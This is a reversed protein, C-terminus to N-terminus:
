IKMVIASAFEEAGDDGTRVQWVCISWVSSGSLDYDAQQWVVFVPQTPFPRQAAKAARHLRVKKAPANGKVRETPAPSKAPLPAVSEPHFVAPIMRPSESERKVGSRLPEHRVVRAENTAAPSAFRVWQPAHAAMGFMAAFMAASLGLMSKRLPKRGSGNAALIETIRLSLQYVRNVLGHVLALATAAQLKETFSILLSAYQNPTGTQAVVMEDCAMERELSLRREIWWVAPHFFFVAKVMKQALNTWDDWRQLHALEHLLIVEMEEASIQSVLSAPFVVAPRFFGIATPVTVEESTCLSVGRVGHNEEIRGVVRPDLSSLELERCNRRLDRVRWLGAGLKLVSFLVGVLWGLLLFLAFSAPLTLNVHSFGAAASSDSHMGAVFPLAAIALLAVFWIVFRVRSHNHGLVRLLGWLAVTLLIGEVATNLARGSLSQAINAIGPM